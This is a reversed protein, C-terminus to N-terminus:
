GQAALREKIWQNLLDNLSRNQDKAIDTLKRWVDREVSVTLKVDDPQPTRKQM